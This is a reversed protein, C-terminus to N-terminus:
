EAERGNTEEVLKVIESPTMIVVLGYGQMLNVGNFKRIRVPNVLHKFNWSVIVDARALTAQAVHLADDAYKRTVVASQLYADRLAIAEATLPLRECGSRLTQALLSQVDPPAAVLEGVLTDSILATVAQNFVAGFFHRSEDAFEADFYGGFVSTDIYVRLASM